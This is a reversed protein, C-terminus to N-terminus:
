YSYKLMKGRCFCSYYQVSLSKIKELSEALISSAQKARKILFKRSSFGIFFTEAKAKTNKTKDKSRV